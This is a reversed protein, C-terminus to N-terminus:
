LRGAPLSREEHARAPQRPALPVWGAADASCDTSLGAGAEAGAGGATGCVRLGLVWRMGTKRQGTTRANVQEEIACMKLDTVAFAKQMEPQIM